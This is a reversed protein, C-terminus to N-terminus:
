APAPEAASERGRLGRLWTVYSPTARAWRWDTAIESALARVPGDANDLTLAIDFLLREFSEPEPDVEIMADWLRANLWQISGHAKHSVRRKGGAALKSLECYERPRLEPLSM